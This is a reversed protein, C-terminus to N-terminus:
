RGQLLFLSFYLNYFACIRWYIDLTADNGLKAATRVVYCTASKESVLNLLDTQSDSLKGRYHRQLSEDYMMTLHFCIYAFASCSGPGIDNHYDIEYENLDRIGSSM